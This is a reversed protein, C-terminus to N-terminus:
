YKKTKPIKSIIFMKFEKSSYISILFAFLTFLLVVLFNIILEKLDFLIYNQKLLTSLYLFLVFFIIYSYQKFYFSKIDKKFAYKYLVFPEIILTLFLNTIITAMLVGVFGFNLALIISLILNVIGEFISKYRDYYFLGCADRYTLTVQRFFNLFYNLTIVFVYSIEFIFEKGLWYYIVFDSLLYFSLFCFVGVVFLIGFMAHFYNYMKEVKNSVFLTGIGAILPTFLLSFISILSTALSVYNSYIGLIGIGILASIIVEDMNLVLSSGIKHFLMAKSKKIIEKKSEEDIIEKKYYYLYRYKKKIYLSFILFQILSFIVKCLLYLYFSKLIVIVIIEFVYEAILVSSSILVSKYTDQHANILSIHSAYLFSTLTGLLVILYSLYVDTDVHLDKIFLPIFNLLIIGVILVILAIIYYIKKYLYFLASVTKKDNNLIPKYMSSTIASGIGLDAISLFGVITTFLSILGQYEIGLYNVLFYRILFIFILNIVKFLLSVFVNRKVKM